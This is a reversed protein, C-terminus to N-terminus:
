EDLVDRIITEECTLWPVDFESKVRPPKHSQVRIRRCKACEWVRGYPHNSLGVKQRIWDHGSKNMLYKRAYLKM